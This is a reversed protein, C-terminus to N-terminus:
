IDSVHCVNVLSEADTRRCLDTAPTMVAASAAAVAYVLAKPDILGRAKALVYAAVFSDGAGIKSKVPVKAAECFWRTEATALVSGDAGRAIIVRKAVGRKALAQAFDASDKRSILPSKALKEAEESGLRLCDLRTSGTKELAHLPAGSTDAFLRTRVPMVKGLRAIFDDPVGPPQSGSIVVFGDNACEKATTALATEVTKEDWVPGPLVFRYQESNHEDTVAFSLRTEGAVAISMSQIGEDILLQTLHMGTAGGVAVLVASAGGLISIARSVNIGGGGPDYHPAACRLKRGAHVAGTSTSLDLAPNLTVTLIDTQPLDMSKGQFKAHLYSGDGYPLAFGVSQSSGTQLVVSLEAENKLRGVHAGHMHTLIVNDIPDHAYRTAALSQHHPWGEAATLCYWSTGPTSSRPSSFSSRKTPPFPHQTQCPPLNLLSLTM